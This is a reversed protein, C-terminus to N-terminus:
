CWMVFSGLCKQDVKSITGLKPMMRLWSLLMTTGINKYKLLKKFGVSMSSGGVDCALTVPLPAFAMQFSFTVFDNFLGSSYYFLALEV